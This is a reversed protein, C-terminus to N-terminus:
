YHHIRTHLTYSSLPIGKLRDSIILEGDVRGFAAVFHQSFYRWCSTDEQKCFTIALPVVRRQADKTVAILLTGVIPGTLHCGDLFIVPLCFPFARIAQPLAVFSRLFHEVPAQGEPARNEKELHTFAGENAAALRLLYEPFQGFEKVMDGSVVEEAKRKMRQATSQSVAVGSERRLSSKANVASKAGALTSPKEAALFASIGHQTSATTSTCTHKGVKNVRVGGESGLKPGATVKWQCTVEACIWTARGGERRKVTFTWGRELGHRRM